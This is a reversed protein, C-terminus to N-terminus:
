IKIGTENLFQRKIMKRQSKSMDYLEKGRIKRVFELFAIYHEQPVNGKTSNCLVCCPVKNSRRNSGGKSVPVVHDDTMALRPCYHCRTM